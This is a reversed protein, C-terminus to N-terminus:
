RCPVAAIRRVIDDVEGLATFGINLVDVMGSDLAYAISRDMKVPDKALSGVGLIKMGIVGQGQAHMRRLVPMVRDPHASMNRGFPNIRVHAVDLWPTDAAAELAGFSHFSCGHARIKGARKAAALAEMHPALKTPWAADTVCHIQVIDLYDTGLERLFRDISTAVDTRDAAPIGGNWAYKTALVYSSRPVGKLAARVLAHTGYADAVDFFRVGRDYADRVLRAAGDEGNKRVIASTRNWSSAGTGFGLRTTVIGTKGLTVKEFASHKRGEAAPAALAYAAGGALFARRPIREGTEM